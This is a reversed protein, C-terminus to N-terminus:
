VAIQNKKKALCAGVVDDLARVTREDLAYTVRVLPRPAERLLRGLDFPTGVVVADCPVRAIAAELERVQRDGYGMAPLVPGIHRFTEFTDRLSGEVYPRPDVIEAAGHLTAAVLGAGSPMGGHTITPGDEVVLVRKGRILSADSVSIVSDAELLRAKPNWRAVNAEVLRIGEAPATGTKAVLVVDALLLNALSPHYSLEHGPRHPDVLMLHLDPRYFPTDNNGGDWLVVDAELEARELIEAYDVGAFLLHGNRLHQEYEEREEVTCHHRDLDALSVFRQSRQARLDGYPMPHRIVAATLGRAALGDALARATQSKGCGTRSAGISIVPLRSTLMTSRAGLLRFSAGAASAIAAKRMVEDNAVDSYAFVVEDVHESRILRELESEEAIPIGTPYLEGALEPPYVRGAIDPIQAATFAVVRYEARDRFAVNFDHFDRGAAGMIIVNTRKM